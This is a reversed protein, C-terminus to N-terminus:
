FLFFITNSDDAFVPSINNGGNKTIQKFAGKDYYFLECNGSGQSACYVVKTGDKSFSPLMNIGDFDSAVTKRKKMDAVMMRVNKDTHESYFLLPNHADNNWRPAINVTPTEVLLQAHSGDYDAIFIHRLRKKGSQKIEKCYAIKTSFLGEQGTLVPWIEDTMNHGWGRVLKGRKAYTDEKVKKKRTVDYLQWAVHRDDTEQLVLALGYGQALLAKMDVHEVPKVTIAFQNSFSMDKRIVSVLKRLEPTHKGKVGLLVSIKAHKKALVAVNTSKTILTHPILLSIFLFFLKKNM